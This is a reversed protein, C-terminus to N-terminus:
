HEDTGRDDLVADVLRDRAVVRVVALALAQVTTRRARAPGELQRVVDASLTITRAGHTLPIGWRTAVHRVAKRSVAAIALDSVIAEASVGRGALYGFRAARRPTWHPYQAV